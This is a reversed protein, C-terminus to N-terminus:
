YMATLQFVKRTLKNKLGLGDRQRSSASDLYRQTEKIISWSKFNTGQEWTGDWFIGPMNMVKCTSFNNLKLGSECSRANGRIDEITKRREGPGGTKDYPSDSYESIYIEVWEIWKCFPRVTRRSIERGWYWFRNGSAEPGLTQYGACHPELLLSLSIYIPKKSAVTNTVYGVTLIRSAEVMKRPIRQILLQIQLYLNRLALAALDPTSEDPWLTADCCLSRQPNSYYGWCTM